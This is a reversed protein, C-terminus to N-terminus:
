LAQGPRQHGAIVTSQAWGADGAVEWTEERVLCFVGASTGIPPSATSGWSGGLLEVQTSIAKHLEPVVHNLPPCDLKGIRCKGAWTPFWPAPPVPQPGRHLDWGNGLTVRAKWPLVQAKRRVPQPRWHEPVITPHPPTPSLSYASAVAHLGSNLSGLMWTCFWVSHHAGMNGTSRPM